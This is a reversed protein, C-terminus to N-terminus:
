ARSRALRVGAGIHRSEPAFFNRFSPRRNEAATDRAGGRLVAHRADFWPTSYERYPHARFGPYPHFRNACWEWAEGVGELVGRRAAHEWEYEHPLRAEAWRACARADHWGIGTVPAAPDLDAPGDGTIGYWAGRADRRWGFPPAPGGRAKMCALYTANDLPRAAIAFARLRARLPPRENDYAFGDAAGVVAHGAPVRHWRTDAPRPRLVERVRWVPDEALRRATLALRVTELHQGIHATLFARLYGDRALRHRPAAALLARNEAMTARAWAVLEDRPPLAAARADKPAHEPLCSAALPATLRDDGLMRERIWLAEVFVCHRLHWGVPSLAPHYRARCSDEDLAGVLACLTEQLRELRATSVSAPECRSSM